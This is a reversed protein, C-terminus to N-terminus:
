EFVEFQYEVDRELLQQNFCRLRALDCNKPKLEIGICSANMLMAAKMTTGSGLFPDLVVGGAPCGLTILYSMLMLPKVTPHTNGKPLTELGQNRESKSAKPVEFFPFTQQVDQPLQRVRERWWADLSFYRSFGGEDTYPEQYRLETMEDKTNGSHKWGVGKFGVSSGKTIKGTDLVNSFKKVHRILQNRNMGRVDSLTLGFYSLVRQGELTLEIKGNHKTYYNM